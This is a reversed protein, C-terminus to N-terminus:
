WFKAFPPHKIKERHIYPRDDGRYMYQYKREGNREYSIENKIWIPIDTPKPVAQPFPLLTKEGQFPHVRALRKLLMLKQTEKHDRHLDLYRSNLYLFLKLEVPIFIWLNLPSYSKYIQIKHSYILKYTDYFFINEFNFYQM